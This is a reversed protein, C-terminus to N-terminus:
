AVVDPNSVQLSELAALSAVFIAPQSVDTAELAGAPGQLCLRRLDIGLIAGARDFLERVAPLERDLERCMGVAQAGQGPFLFAIRAMVRIERFPLAERPPASLVFELAKIGFAPDARRVVGGRRDPRGAEGRRRKEAGGSRRARRRGDGPPRPRPAAASSSSSGTTCGNRPWPAPSASPTRSRAPAPPATASSAPARSAWCPRGASSRTSSGRRSGGSARPSRRAPM